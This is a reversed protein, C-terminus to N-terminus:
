VHAWIKRRKICSILSQSVGFKKALSNTSEGNALGDRIERVKEDNLKAAPNSTGFSKFAGSRGRGREVMDRSNDAVTGILLHEPNICPPNDCRHRVLWGKISDMTVGNAECYATRHAYVTKGKVVVYGYGDRTRKGQFEICPTELDM